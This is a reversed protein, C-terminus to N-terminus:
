RKPVDNSNSKMTDAFGGAGMGILWAGVIGILLGLGIKKFDKNDGKFGKYIDVAAVMFLGFGVAAIVIDLGYSGLSKMWSSAASLTVFQNAVLSFTNM